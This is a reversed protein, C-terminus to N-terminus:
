RRDAENSELLATLNKQDQGYPTLVAHATSRSTEPLGYKVFTAMTGSPGVDIYRHPGQQELHAITDRFRIPHRVVDWFFGDPLDTLTTARDCCVIPLDGRGLPISRMSSEFQEQANDIWRSHFAISVALRQHTVDARKLGAEIAELETQAASVAFHRSFNVGAMESHERLFHEDYLSPDALVAILGGRECSAEFAAAQAVVAALADEVAMHGAVTAAAFSGLSAGLTLEPKVGEHMLCQALSYEVMFIAPHTFLTRDFVEAKSASYIADLVRKGSLKQALSDLRLMWERFVENSDLLQKGMQHYQSGQGSFMFVTNGVPM